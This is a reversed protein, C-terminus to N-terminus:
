IKDLMRLLLSVHLYPKVPSPSYIANVNCGLKSNMDKDRSAYRTLNKYKPHLNGVYQEQWDTM